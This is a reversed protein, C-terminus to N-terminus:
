DHVRWPDLATFVPKQGGWLQELNYFDRVAPQMVHVVVSGADVLVWEGNLEGEMKIDTYGVAKLEERVNNALAKVQRSSDGTAVVLWEFLSTLAATNLQVIDKGKIDELAAIAMNKTEEASPLAKPAVLQIITERM